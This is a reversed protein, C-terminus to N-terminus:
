AFDHRQPLCYGDKNAKKKKRMALDANLILTPAFPYIGVGAASAICSMTENVWLALFVLIKM